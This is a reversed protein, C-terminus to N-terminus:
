FINTRKSPLYDDESNKRKQPRAMPAEEDESDEVAQRSRAKGKGKSVRHQNEVSERESQSKMALWMKYDIKVVCQKKEAGGTQYDNEDPPYATEVFIDGNEDQRTLAQGDKILFSLHFLNEVTKGFSNPDCITSAFSRPGSEILKNYFSSVRVATEPASQQVKEGRNMEKPVVKEQLPEKTARKKQVRQAKPASPGFNGFLFDVVPVTHFLPVCIAGINSWNLDRNNVAEDDDDDRSDDDQSSSTTRTNSFNQRLRFLFDIPDHARLSHFKQVQEVGLTAALSLFESDLVAERPNRVEKYLKDGESLSKELGHSEPRVIDAKDDKTKQILERYSLRILRRDKSDAEHEVAVSPSLPQSDSIDNFDFDSM